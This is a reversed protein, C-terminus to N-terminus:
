PHPMTYLNTRKYELDDKGGLNLCVPSCEVASIIRLGRRMCGEGQSAQHNFGPVYLHLACNQEVM